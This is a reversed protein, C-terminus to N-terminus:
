EHTVGSEVPCLAICAADVIVGVYSGNTHYRSEDSVIRGELRPSNQLQATGPSRWLLIQFVGAHIKWPHRAEMEVCLVVQM